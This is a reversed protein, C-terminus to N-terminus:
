SATPTWLLAYRYGLRFTHKDYLSSVEVGNGLEQAIQQGRANYEASELDANLLAQELAQREPDSLPRWDRASVYGTAELVTDNPDLVTQSWPTFTTDTFTGNPLDQRVPRGLADYTTTTAVGFPRHTLASEFAHASHESTRPRM